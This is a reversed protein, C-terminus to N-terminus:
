NPMASLTESWGCQPAIANAGGCARLGVGCGLGKVSASCLGVPLPIVAGCFCLLASGDFKVSVLVTGDM